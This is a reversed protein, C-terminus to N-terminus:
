VADVCAKTDCWVVQMAKRFNKLTRDKKGTTEQGHISILLADIITDPMEWGWVVNGREGAPRRNMASFERLIGTCPISANAPGLNVTDDGLTVTNIVDVRYPLAAEFGTELLRQVKAFKADMLADVMGVCIYVPKTSNNYGDVYQWPYDDITGYEHLFLLKAGPTHYIDVLEPPNLGLENIVGTSPWGPVGPVAPFTVYSGDTNAMLWSVHLADNLSGNHM